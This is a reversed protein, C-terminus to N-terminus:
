SYAAMSCFGLLKAILEVRTRVNFKQIMRASYSDVTRPSLSLFKGIEKSSKGTILLQAVDKERGTLACAMPGELSVDKPAACISHNPRRSHGTLHRWFLSNGIRRIGRENSYCGIPLMPLLYRMGFQEFEDRSPYRHVLSDGALEVARAGFIAGWGWNGYDPSNRILRVIGTQIEAQPNIAQIAHPFDMKDDVVAMRIHELGRNKLEAMVRVWFKARGAQEIWIGLIDRSGDARVGIALYVAKSKATDEDRIKIHADFFVLSYMPDLPRNQWETVEKIVERTITWILDPSVKLGYLETLLGHIRRVPLGRAYLSIVEDDFGPLRRQYKAILKPEFSGDRDRPIDLKLKTEAALVSKKCSGNRKNRVPEPVSRQQDLHHSLEAQLMREALAKKLSGFLGAHALMSQPDSLDVNGLLEDLKAKDNVRM